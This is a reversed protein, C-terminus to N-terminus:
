RETGGLRVAISAALAISMTLVIAGVAGHPRRAPAARAEAARSLTGM